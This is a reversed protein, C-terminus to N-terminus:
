FPRPLSAPPLSPPVDPPFGPAGEVSAEMPRVPAVWPLDWEVCWDKRRDGGQDGDFGPSYWGVSAGDRSYERYPEGTVPDIGPLEGRLLRAALTWQSRAQQVKGHMMSMAPFLMRVLTNRPNWRSSREIQQTQHHLTAHEVSGSSSHRRLSVITALYTELLHRRGTRLAFAAHVINMDSSAKLFAVAQPDRMLHHFHIMEGHMGREFGTLFREAIADFRVSLDNRQEVTLAERGQAVAPLILAGVSIDVLLVILSPQDPSWELIRLLRDCAAAVEVPDSILVVERQLRAAKRLSTIWPMPSSLTPAANLVPRYHPLADIAAALAAKHAQVHDVMAVPPTEGWGPLTRPPTAGSDNWPSLTSIRREFDDWAQRDADTAQSTGLLGAWNLDIGATHAKAEFRRLDADSTYWWTAGLTVVVLGILAPVGLRWWWPWRQKTATM